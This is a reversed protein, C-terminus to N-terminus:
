PHRPESFDVPSPPEPDPTLETGPGATMRVVCPIKRLWIEGRDDVVSCYQGQLAGCNPCDRELARTSAYARVIVSSARRSM